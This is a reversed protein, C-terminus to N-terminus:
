IESQGSLQEPPEARIPQAVRDAAFEAGRDGRQKGPVEVDSVRDRHDLRSLRRHGPAVDATGRDRGKDLWQFASEVTDHHLRPSRCLLAKRGAEIVYVDENQFPDHGFAAVSASAKTVHFAPCSLYLYRRPLIPMVIGHAAEVPAFVM